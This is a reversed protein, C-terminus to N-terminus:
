DVFNKAALYESLKFELNYSEACDSLLIEWLEPLSNDHVEQLSRLINYDTDKASKDLVGMKVLETIFGIGWTFGEMESKYEEDSIICGVACKLDDRGRYACMSSARISRKGQQLLHRAVQDFIQQATAEHLNALTIVM